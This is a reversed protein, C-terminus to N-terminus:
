DEWDWFIHEGIQIIHDDTILCNMSDSKLHNCKNALESKSVPIFQNGEKILHSGTVYIIQNLTHSYIEYYPNEDTTKNKNGIINMTALVKSGNCLIDGIEIDKMKKREGSELELSTEPHFCVFNLTDGIPGEMISKGTMISSEVLYITTAMTGVIKGMTDKLKIIMRQFEILLNIFIGLISGFINTLNGTLSSIKKRVWNIDEGLQGITNQFLSMAYHTPQLLHGMYAGQMNQICYTFNEAPDHGFYSAMPMIMPNCRYLPWNKKINEMGINVINVAYISIFLIIIVISLVIDYLKM